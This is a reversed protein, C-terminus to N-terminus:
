SIFYHFSGELFSFADSFNDSLVQGTNAFLSLLIYIILCEFM